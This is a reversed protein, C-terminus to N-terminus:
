FNEIRSYLIDRYRMMAQLQARLLNVDKVDDVKGHEYRNLFDSLKTIRFSLDNYEDIVREQWNTYKLDSM